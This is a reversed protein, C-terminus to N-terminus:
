KLYLMRATRVEDPGSLRIIYTGTPIAANPRWAIRVPQGKVAFGERNSVLRGLLDYVRATYHGASAPTWRALIGFIDTGSGPPNRGACSHCGQPVHFFKSSTVSILNMTYIKGGIM